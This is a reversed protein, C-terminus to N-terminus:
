NNKTICEYEKLAEKPSGITSITGQNILVVRDCYKKVIETDHTVLIITKSAKRYNEFEQICKKQFEADGVALVEDLLLIERNAHLAVSFALRVQMGSSYNKLKQDIFYGMESFEVIADFTEDILKKSMGLVTANLYINDRGSLEPHFGIGLELFPSIRGHVVVSGSTPTYVGALIKLLTSKGSGNAGIIGLCEGKIVDFSINKLANFTHYTKKQFLGIFAGKLTTARDYPVIFKKSITRVSIAITSPTTQMMDTKM